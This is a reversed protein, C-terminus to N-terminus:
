TEAITAAAERMAERPATRGTWREFSAAGQAVLIELGDVVGAGRARAAELLQTGGARYVMDVVLSGAGLEDAESPSRRSRDAEPDSLGVSTCNVVIDARRRRKSPARASSRPSRRPASPRATGSRWTPRAPAQAAGVGRRPRRRRRRARARTAGPAALEAAGRAARARRHQRRPDGGDEFTLTNAAGIARAPTPRRPRRARAGGGQAPDDRQRRPLRGGAARARDRRVAGAAAAAAPLALRRPRRGRARRQADAALALARGALRLRGPLDLGAASAQYRANDREFQANTTSFAHAGRSARSACTSCTSRAARPQRRGQDVGPGPQRDADAAPRPAPALQVAHRADLESQPDPAALQEDAYRITADIGLPM